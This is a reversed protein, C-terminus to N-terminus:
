SLLDIVLGRIEMVKRTIELRDKQRSLMIRLLSDAERDIVAVREHYRPDFPTGGVKDIRYAMDIIRKTVAGLLDRFTRFTEMTPERELREGTEDLRQILQDIEEHFQSIESTETVLARRFLSGIGRPSGKRDLRGGRTERSPPADISRIRIM